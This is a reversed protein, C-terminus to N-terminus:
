IKKIMSIKKRYEMFTNYPMEQQNIEIVSHFFWKANINVEIQMNKTYKEYLIRWIPNTTNPKETEWKPFVSCCPLQDPHKSLYNMGNYFLFHKNMDTNVQGAVVESTVLPWKRYTEYIM